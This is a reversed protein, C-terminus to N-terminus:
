SEVKVSPSVDGPLAANLAALAGTVDGGLGTIAASVAAAWTLIDTAADEHMVAKDAGDDGLYVYGGAIPKELVAVNAPIPYPNDKVRVGPLFFGNQVQHTVTSEPVSISGTRWWTHWDTDAVIIAGYDGEQLDWYVGPFIVPMYITVAMETGDPKLVCPRIRATQTTRSWEEVKGPKMVMINSASEDLAQSLSEVLTPENPSTM